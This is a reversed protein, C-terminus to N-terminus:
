PLDFVAGVATFGVGFSLSDDVGDVRPNFDGASDFLDIDPALLSSILPSARVEEVSIVGDVDITDFLDLIDEGPSDPDCTLGICDEAVIANFADALGPILVSDIEAETIGGGLRGISLNTATINAEVRAGVLNVRIPSTGGFVLLKLPITGGRASLHGSTISGYLLSDTPTGPEIVFMESGSFNDAPNAPVDGDNGLFVSVGVDSATVLDTAQVDFIELLEGDAVFGDIAAQPDAGMSSLTALVQGLANDPRMLPDGDIDLGLAFAESASTPVDITNAVFQTHDGTPDVFGDPTPAADPIAADPTNDAADPISSADPLAAADTAVDDDDGTADDGCGVAAVLLLTAGARTILSLTKMPGMM